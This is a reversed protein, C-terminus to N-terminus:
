KSAIHSQSGSVSREERRQLVAINIANVEYLEKLSDVPLASLVTDPMYYTSLSKSSENNNILLQIEM